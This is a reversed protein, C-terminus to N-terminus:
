PIYLDLPLCLHPFLWLQCNDLLNVMKYSFPEHCDGFSNGYYCLFIVSFFYSTLCCQSSSLTCYRHLLKFYPTLQWFVICLCCISLTKTWAPPNGCTGSIYTFCLLGMLPSTCVTHSGACLLSPTFIVQTLHQTIEQSWRVPHGPDSEQEGSNVHCLWHRFCAMWLVCRNSLRNRDKKNQFSEM